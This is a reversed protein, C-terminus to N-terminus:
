VAAADNLGSIRLLQEGAVDLPERSTTLLKLSPLAALLEVALNAVTEVGHECNDLILLTPMDGLREAIRQADVPGAGASRDLTGLVVSEVQTENASALECFWVGGPFAPISRRGVERALATKGAGGPGVISVLQKESILEM